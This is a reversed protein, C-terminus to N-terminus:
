SCLPPGGHPPGHPPGGRGCGHNPPGGFPSAHMGVLALPFREPLHFSVSLLSVIGAIDKPFIPCVLEDYLGIGEGAPGASLICINLIPEKDILGTLELKARSVTVSILPPKSHYAPGQMRWKEKKGEKSNGDDDGDEDDSIRQTDGPPAGEFKHRHHVPPPFPLGAPGDRVFSISAATLGPDVFTGTGPWAAVTINVEAGSALQHCEKIYPQPPPGHPHPPDWPHRGAAYYPPDHQYYRPFGHRAGGFALASFLPMYRLAFVSATLFALLAAFARLKGSRSRKGWAAKGDLGACDDNNNDLHPAGRRGFLRFFHGRLGCGHVHGHGHAHRCTHEHGRGRTHAHPHVHGYEHALLAAKEPDSPPAPASRRCDDSSRSCDSADDDKEESLRDIHILLPTQQAEPDAASSSSRAM